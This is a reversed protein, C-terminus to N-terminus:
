MASMDDLLNQALESIAVEAEELGWGVKEAEKALRQFPPPLRGSATEVINEPTLGKAIDLFTQEVAEQCAIDRDPYPGKGRPKNLLLM